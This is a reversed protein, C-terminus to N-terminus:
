WVVLAAMIRHIALTILNDMLAGSTRKPIENLSLTAWEDSCLLYPNITVACGVQLIQSEDPTDICARFSGRPPNIPDITSTTGSCLELGFTKSKPEVSCNDM